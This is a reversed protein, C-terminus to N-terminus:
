GKPGIIPKSEQPIETAAPSTDKVGSDLGLLGKVFRWVKQIFTEPQPVVGDIVPSGNEGPTITGDPGMDMAPLVEIQLTQTIFRPQNFDDTYNISVEINLTGEQYPMLNVDLTYYGGPDLSGVLSVNNSVEANEATVKMNGLVYNKKGLNTVQLPLVSMTNAYFVGPDRYYNVEVQPLMYVLLTIVQDDVLRNGKPDNYVFSLKLTYAGPTTNVNVILKVPVTITANEKLDGLYVLNSSGLPAFNTLDSGAGSLGGASPTGNDGGQTGGGGVVMTITSADANGLNRLELDMTFISGPQLPDIDTKYNTVVLQPRKIVSPTATAYSGSSSPYAINITLSFSGSYGVGSGDEYSINVKLSAVGSWALSDAVLFNQKITVKNGADIVEVSKVGGTSRPLFDTSDFTVLINRASRQGTNKLELALTFEQGAKVASGADYGNVIVVPRGSSGPTATPNAVSTTLEVSGLSEDTASNTFKVLAVNNQGGTAASDISVYVKVTKRSGDSGSAALSFSSPDVTTTWGGVVSVAGAVSISDATTNELTIAYQVVSGPMGSKATADASLNVGGAAKVQGPFSMLLTAVLLPILFLSIRKSNM